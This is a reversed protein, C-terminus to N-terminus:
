GANKKREKFVSRTFKRKKSLERAALMMTKFESRVSKKKWVFPKKASFRLKSLAGRGKLNTLRERSENKKWDHPGKKKLLRPLLCRASQLKRNWVFVSWKKRRKASKSKERLSYNACDSSRKMENLRICSHRKLSAGILNLWSLKFRLTMSMKKASLDLKSKKLHRRALLMKLKTSPEISKM